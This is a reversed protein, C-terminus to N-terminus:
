TVSTSKVGKSVRTLSKIFSPDAQYTFETDCNELTYIGEASIFEVRYLRRGDTLYDKVKFQTTTGNAPM